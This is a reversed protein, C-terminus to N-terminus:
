RYFGKPEGRSLNLHRSKPILARQLRNGGNSQRLGRKLSVAVGRGRKDRRPSATTWKPLRGGTFGFIFTVPIIFVMAIRYHLRIM